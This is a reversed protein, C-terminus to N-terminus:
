GETTPGKIEGALHGRKVWLRAGEPGAVAGLSGGRPLRLWSWKRLEDEGERVSGELVLLELGGSAEEDVAAGASWTEIAVTEREDEHLLMTLVGPGTAVATLHCDATGGSSGQTLRGTHTNVSFQNQDSPAMQRLKVLITCGADTYPKHSTRPPNRVYTGAPFDGYQDQFVGDLVLYEEGGHHTHESFSSGPAFRVITTARAEEDGIRDLMRREVGAMPSPTWPIESAHVVVRKSFDANLRTAGAAASATSPRTAVWCTAIGTALAAGSLIPRRLAGMM